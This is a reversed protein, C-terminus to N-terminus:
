SWDRHGWLRQGVPEWKLSVGGGNGPAGPLLLSGLDGGSLRIGSTQTQAWSDEHDFVVPSESAPSEPGTM